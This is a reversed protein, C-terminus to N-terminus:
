QAVIQVKNPIEVITTPAAMEAGHAHLIDIILFLLEQKLQAFEESDIITVYANVLIDLSYPGFGTLTVSIKQENDVDKHDELMKAIDETIAKVSKMDHFRLHIVEKIERHSMRSPTEVVVKSFIANPVYMPRKELTRVRTMYWGIEEVHGEINKEKLNIWDGVGFPHTLYIMLGSFFNAIVEQSAFAIALGGIGGFAIITSISRGTIEMLLLIAVFLVIISIAKDIVDIKSRNWSIEHRKSKLSMLRILKKKWLFIFWTICAVAVIELILHINSFFSASNLSPFILNLSHLGAFILTYTSLPPYLAQVFSDKWIQKTAEFRQHLKKLIWKALFNFILVFLVLSIAEKTWGYQGDFISSAVWCCQEFTEVLTETM